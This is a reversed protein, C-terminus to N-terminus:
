TRAAANLDHEPGYKLGDKSDERTGLVSLMGNKVAGQMAALCARADGDIMHAACALMLNRSMGFSEILYGQADRGDADGQVQEVIPQSPAGYTWVPLGLAAAFGVEFATGSDPEAGRFNQLNAMVADASRILAVNADFIGRAAEALARPAEPAPTDLPYLGEFGFEACWQRLVDGHALADVRFVDPGALYIKLRKM